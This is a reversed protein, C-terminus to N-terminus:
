AELRLFMRLRWVGYAMSSPGDQCRVRPIGGGLGFGEKSGIRWSAMFGTYQAHYWPEHRVKTM